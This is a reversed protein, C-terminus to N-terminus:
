SVANKGELWHFILIDMTPSTDLHLAPSFTLTVLPTLPLIFPLVMRMAAAATVVAVVVMATLVLVSDAGGSGGGRRACQCWERVRKPIISLCIYPM